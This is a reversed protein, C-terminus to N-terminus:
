AEWSHWHPNYYFTEVVAVVPFLFVQERKRNNRRPCCFNRLNFLIHPIDLLPFLSVFFSVKENSVTIEHELVENRSKLSKNEQLLSQGIRAALELDQEKEELLRTVADIDNYTKTMQSLREASLIFYKLTEEILEPTLDLPIEPDL